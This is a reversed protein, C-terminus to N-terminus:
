SPQSMGKELALSCSAEAIKTSAHLLLGQRLQVKLALSIKKKGMEACFLVYM